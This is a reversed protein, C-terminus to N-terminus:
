VPLWGRLSTTVRVREGNMRKRGTNRPFEGNKPNIWLRNGAKVETSHLAEMSSIVRPTVGFNGGRLGPIEVPYRRFKWPTVGVRAPTVGPPFSSWVTVMKVIKGVRAEVNTPQCNQALTSAEWLSM